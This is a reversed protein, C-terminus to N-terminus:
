SRVVEQSGEGEDPPLVAEAIELHRFNTIQCPQVVCCIARIGFPVMSAGANLGSADEMLRNRAILSDILHLLGPFCGM